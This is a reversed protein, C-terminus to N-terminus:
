NGTEDAAKERALGPNHTRAVRAGAPVWYKNNTDNTQQLSDVMHVLNHPQYSMLLGPKVLDPFHSIDTSSFVSAVALNAKLDQQFRQFAVQATTRGFNCKVGPYKKDFAACIDAITETDYHATYVTFEKEKKAADYLSQEWPAMQAEAPVAAVAVAAILSAAFLGKSLHNM